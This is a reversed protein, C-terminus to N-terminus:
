LRKVLTERRLIAIAEPAAVGISTGGKKKGFVHVVIPGCKFLEGVTMEPDHEEHPFILLSEGDKRNIVLM